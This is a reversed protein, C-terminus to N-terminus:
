RKKAEFYLMESSFDKPLQVKLGGDMIGKGSIEGILGKGSYMETPELGRPFIEISCKGFHTTTRFCFIVSEKKDRSVYQIAAFDSRQPSILRYLDGDQVIHRIKKYEEIMAKALKFDNESWKHLNAGIGLVGMMASHFRYKLDFQGSDTVWAVMSKASYVYSCGEQIILRDYPNTNDSTWFQDTRHLIGLDVRGGGGSCTEFMVHPHKNRLRDFIEYLNWTYRIWIEKRRDNEFEIWGPDTIAKNMDWKIFKINYNSLLADVSNFIFDAVEPKAVNLNWQNRGKEPKCKPFRMVWDSHNRYLDSDENVMEPEVWIGFDMGLSNVKEILPGLGKPFKQPNVRWDGLGARDNNRAGFWGDDIVFLEVGISAAKEALKIQDEENVNFMTAEWSNYLVKRLTNKFNYPFVYKRQLNHLNRSAQGFGKNTYGGFFSPNRFWKTPKLKFISDFDNIGGVAKTLGFPTKEVLIKWNGSYALAGFWVEGSEETANRNLDDLMFWPNFDHSTHGKRSEIVFKGEHIPIHKINFERAWNGHCYTLRYDRNLPLNWSASHAIDLIVYDTGENFIEVFREIIDFNEYVVYNLVVRINYYGDVLTIILQDNGYADKGLESCKYKLLTKRNGDPFTIKVCPVSFLYGGWEPYELPLYGKEGDFSSPILFQPLPIDEEAHLSPGWYINHLAGSESISIVYWTNQTKLIWGDYFKCREIM